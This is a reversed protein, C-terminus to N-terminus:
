RLDKGVIPHSQTRKNTVARRRRMNTVCRKAMRSNSSCCFVYSSVEHEGVHSALDRLIDFSAVAAVFVLSCSIRFVPVELEAFWRM